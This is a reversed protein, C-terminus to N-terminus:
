LYNSALMSDHLAVSEPSLLSRLEAESVVASADKLRYGERDDETATEKIIRRHCIWRLTLSRPIEHPLFCISFSRCFDSGSNRCMFCALSLPPVRRLNFDTEYPFAVKIEDFSISTKAANHRLWRILYARVRKKAVDQSGM